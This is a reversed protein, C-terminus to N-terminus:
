SQDSRRTERSMEYGEVLDLLKDFGRGIVIWGPEGNNKIFGGLFAVGLLAQQVTPKAPLAPRGRKRLAARLCTIMVPSLVLSAPAKEDSRALTRMRLMRWAIPVFVALANLLSHMSELQRKEIACGTKLAKFYEEITWRCRYADVVALVQEPTDIPERTWLRWEVAPEGEPPNPEFVKVANLTLTKAPSHNSSDPRQLTVQVATIELLATRANREPFRKNYGPLKSAGRATLTVEREVLIPQAALVEGIRRSPKGELARKDSAMRVVFRATMECLDALLAYCDAERDMVHIARGAGLSEEADVALAKWRKSENDDATQLAEHGRRGKGGHREHISVGLVGLPDRNLPNVAVAFHGYFGHSQGQGVRGLDDRESSGFNFETTDHAVVVPALGIRRATARMHPATIRDPTVRENGLFRYTGELASDSELAVPFSAGPERALSMAASVLRRTLRGDGFEAGIYEDALDNCARRVM